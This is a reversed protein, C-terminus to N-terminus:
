YVVKVLSAGMVKGMIEKKSSVNVLRITDGKCGDERAVAKTSIRLQKSEAVVTITDGRKVLAPEEVSRSTIAQGPRVSRKLEKGIVEQATLVEGRHTRDMTVKRVTIDAETIIHGRELSRNVVVVESEVRVEGKWWVQKVLEGNSRVSVLLMMDGLYEENRQPTIEFDYEGEPILVEEARLPIVEARGPDWPMNREVFDKGVQKIKEEPIRVAARRIEVSSAGDLVVGHAWIRSELKSRISSTDVIDKRGLDPAYGVALSGLKVVLDNDPGTIESVDCLRVVNQHVVASPKILITTFEPKSSSQAPVVTLLLFLVFVLGARAATSTRSPKVM